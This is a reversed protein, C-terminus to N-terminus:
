ALERHVGEREATPEAAATDAQGDRGRTRAYWQHFTEKAPEPVDRHRGWANLRNYLAFHPLVKLAAMGSEAAARFARPHSLLKGAVKMAAKKTTSFQGHDDMVERWQYIQDHINIQVPCVNSCSGNITSAFPLERYRRIDAAPMTIIGIPGMYTAGYSLGGSRRYVPCTNMCAGCRICKLSPWFREDALRQSRGNDVLVIHMEGGERPKAFHSTYQTIREGTASRTLLRIFVALEDTGPIIKEIGVSCIRVNPVNGSLDANGENTVTVVAGTQAVAFNAGTMGADAALILPRTHERMVQALYVPDARGPDSGYVRHFLEAIDQTTKQFAPGVIHTPPQNDLQQIREGLDTETVEIGRRHLFPRLECEETLMSKSKVLHKAGHSNLVDYVIQNHEHADRAWHVTAGNRVASAEFTELYHALNSLTHEKIQSALTRLDEWEAVERAAADRRQRLGWILTDFAREHPDDELFGLANRAQDVSTM